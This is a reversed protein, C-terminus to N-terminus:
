DWGVSGFASACPAGSAFLFRLAEGAVPDPLALISSSLTGREAGHKCFADEPRPGHSSLVERLRDIIADIGAGGSERLADLERGPDLEDLRHRNTLTHLGPPLDAADLVAGGAGPHVLVRARRADALLVQFANRRGRGLEARALAEAKKVRV